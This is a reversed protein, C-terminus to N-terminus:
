AHQEGSRDRNPSPSRQMWVLAGLLVGIGSLEFSYLVSGAIGAVMALAALWRWRSITAFVGILVATWGFVNNLFGFVAIQRVACRWSTADGTCALAVEEPEVIKLRVLLLLTTAVAVLSLLSILSRLWDAYSQRPDSM